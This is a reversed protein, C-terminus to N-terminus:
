NSTVEILLLADSTNELTYASSANMGIERGNAADILKVNADAPLNAPNWTISIPQGTRSTIILQWEKSSDMAKIDRWFPGDKTQSYVQITGSLMAPVDYRGDNLDTADPQQGFSLRSEANGSTVTIAAEWGDFASVQYSFIGIFLITFFIIINTKKM